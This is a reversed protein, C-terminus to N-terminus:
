EGPLHARRALQAYAPQSRLRDLYGRLFAVNKQETPHLESIKVKKGPTMDPEYWGGRPSLPLFRNHWQSYRHGDGEVWGDLSDELDTVPGLYFADGHRAYIEHLLWDAIAIRLLNIDFQRVDDPLHETALRLDRTALNEITQDGYEEEAGRYVPLSFQYSHAQDDRDLGHWEVTRLWIEAAPTWDEFQWTVTNDDLWRAQEPYSVQRHPPLAASPVLPHGLKFTIDARGIPGKWLTGTTVVYMWQWGRVLFNSGALVLPEGMDFVVRIVKTEQPAWTVNWTVVEPYDGITRPPDTALYDDRETRPRGAQLEVPAPRFASDPEGASRLHVQFGKALDSPRGLTSGMVPFAVLSNIEQDRHNRMVFTATCVFGFEAPEIRVDEADMSVDASKVPVIAAGQRRVTYMDAWATATAGLALLTAALVHSVRKM